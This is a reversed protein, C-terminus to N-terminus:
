VFTTISLLINGESLTDHNIETPELFAIISPHLHTFVRTTYLAMMSERDEYVERVVGLISGRLLLM